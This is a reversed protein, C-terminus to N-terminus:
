VCMKVPQFFINPKMLYAYAARLDVNLLLSFFYPQLYVISYIRNKVLERSEELVNRLPM